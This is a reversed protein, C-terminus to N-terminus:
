WFMQPSPYSWTSETGGKPITSQVRDTSLAQKQGPAPLQNANAPMNNSPDLAGAAGVAAAQKGDSDQRREDRSKVIRRGYVDYSHPNLYKTM